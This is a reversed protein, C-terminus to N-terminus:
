RRKYGRKLPEGWDEAPELSSIRGETKVTEFPPQERQPYFPERRIKEKDVHYEKLDKPLKNYFKNDESIALIIM